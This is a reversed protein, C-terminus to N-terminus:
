ILGHTKASSAVVRVYENSSTHRYQEAETLSESVWLTEFLLDVLTDFSDREEEKFTPRSLDELLNEVSLGKRAEVVAWRRFYLSGSDKSRVARYVRDSLKLLKVKLEELFHARDPDVIGKDLYGLMMGYISEERSLSDGLSYLAHEEIVQKLLSIAEYFRNSLIYENITKRNM